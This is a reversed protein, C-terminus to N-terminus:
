TLLPLCRLERSSWNRESAMRAAFEACTPAGADPTLLPGRAWASHQLTRSWAARPNSTDQTHWIQRFGHRRLRTFYHAYMSREGDTTSSSSSSSARRPRWPPAAKNTDHEMLILQIGDLMEAESAADNFLYRICGECDILLTDFRRGLHREVSAVDISRVVDRSHEGPLALRTQTAYHGYKRSLAIPTDGVVGRLIHFSCNHADRNRLLQAHVSPDPEVAVVAGSNGTSQALVCSTTGFRGGLELVANEKTM